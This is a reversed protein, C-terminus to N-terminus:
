NLIKLIDKTFFKDTYFQVKKFSYNIKKKHYKKENMMKRFNIIFSKFNNNKFLYGNFGYDIFEAPGSHCDSTLIIKRCSAAEQIVFGPEEWLSSCILGESKALYKYVNNKHGLLFVKNQLNNEIITNKLTKKEEGDGLIFLSLNSYNKLVEKFCNILFKFNKQKTLRGISIFFKKKGFREEIKKSKLRHIYEIDIVPDYIFVIKKKSFIQKKLFVKKAYKTQVLVYKIKKECYSYISRRLFSFKIKGSVRFIIKNKFNFFTILLMPLSTLLYVFLQDNKNKKLFFILPIASFLSLVIFFLRSWFLGKKPFSNLIRNKILKVETIKNKKFFPTYKDFEGFVNIVKCEYDKLKSLSKASQLVAKATGVSGIFPCWFTVYKM